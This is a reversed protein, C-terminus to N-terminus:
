ALTLNPDIDESLESRHSRAFKLSAVYGIMAANDTTLSASPLLLHHGAKDCRAQLVQRLRSNCAVGGSVALCNMGTAALAKLAKAVLVDIVADQFSACIDPLWEQEPMKERLEPLQYLVSTKLGSFSFAFDGSYLMSRPFDYVKPDGSAALKDIEPGGPYPLGLMKGVKDFAEGAADDRTRGLLTYDGVDDMRILMTHGGSVILGVCPCPDVAASLFPSLLHGEMHNIGLYPRQMTVALAKAVTNGILLSSSLGPGSTAAFADIDAIDCDAAALAQRVLPAVNIVHNRSALEPVVGGYPRHLPVQSSIESALVRSGEVIAVATEDCSTELALIRPLSESM